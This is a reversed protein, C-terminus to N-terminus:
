AAPPLSVPTAPPEASLLAHARALALMSVPLSVFLGVGCALAGVLNLVLLVLWLVVVDGLHAMVLDKSRGLAQKYGAGQVVLLPSFAFLVSTVVVGLGCLFVGAATALGVLLYDGQRAMCPAFADALGPTQENLSKQAVAMFGGMFLGSSLANAVFNFPFHIFSFVASLACSAALLAFTVLVHAAADRKWAKWGFSLCEEIRM